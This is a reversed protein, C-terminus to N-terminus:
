LTLLSLICKRFSLRTNILYNNENTYKNSLNSSYVSSITDFPPTSSTVLTRLPFYLLIITTIFHSPFIYDLINLPLTKLLIKNELLAYM